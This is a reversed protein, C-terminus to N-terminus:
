NIKVPAIELVQSTYSQIEVASKKKKKLTMWLNVYFLVTFILTVEVVTRLPLTSEAILNWHLSYKEM